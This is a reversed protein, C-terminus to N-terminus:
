IISLSRGFLKMRFMIMDMFLETELILLIGPLLSRFIHKVKIIRNVAEGIIEINREVARKTKIDKQFEEFQQENPIFLQIEEIAQEIDALWKKIKPDM